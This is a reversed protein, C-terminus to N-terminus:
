TEVGFQFGHCEIGASFDLNGKNKTSSGKIKGQTKLDLTMLFVKSDKPMTIRRKFRRPTRLVLPTAERLSNYLVCMERRLSNKLEPINSSLLFPLPRSM